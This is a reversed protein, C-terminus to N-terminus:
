PTTGNQKKATYKRSFFKDKSQIFRKEIFEYSLASILITILLSALLRIFWPFNPLTFDISWIVPYHFVYLGYSITGLYFIVTNEFFKPMFKKDRIHILIYAFVLNLASYGWIYKYSDRMFPAFGLGSKYMDENSFLYETILGIVITIAIILWVSNGSERQKTFYLAFYGGIAFADMHSFPLVYVVLDTKNSIFTFTNESVAISILLRIVPGLLIILLLLKKLHAKPTLFLILPWVLYFQEEVALSWFHTVLPTHQYMESAHYFNYTYTVAWPIQKLYREIAKIEEYGNQYTIFLAILAAVLIYLYYLPFIRLARRGYFRMFFDRSNLSSKMDILIPTLLFGSLVFFAQVGLYGASLAGSHFLFVAFIAVARFSTLGKYM